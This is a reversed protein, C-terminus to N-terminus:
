VTALVALDLRRYKSDDALLQAEIEHVPRGTEIATSSAVARIIRHHQAQPSAISPTNM